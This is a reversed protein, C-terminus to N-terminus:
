RFHRVVIPRLVQYHYQSLHIYIFTTIDIVCILVINVVELIIQQM